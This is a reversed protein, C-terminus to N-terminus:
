SAGGAPAPVPVPAPKSASKMWLWLAGVVVPVALVLAVVLGTSTAGASASGGAPKAAVLASRFAPTIVGNPPAIGHDKKFRAIAGATAPGMKGDVGSKGVSYGTGLLKTQISKLLAVGSTSPPVNKATTATETVPAKTVSDETVAGGDETATTDIAFPPAWDDLLPADVSTMMDDASVLDAPSPPDPLSDIMDGLDGVRSRAPTRRVRQASLDAMIAMNRM